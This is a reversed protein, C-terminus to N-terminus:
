IYLCMFLRVDYICEHICVYLFMCEYVYFCVGNPSVNIDFAQATKYMYSYDSLIYMHIQVRMYVHIDIYKYIM